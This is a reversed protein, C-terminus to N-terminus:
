SPVSGFTPITNFVIETVAKVSAVGYRFPMVLRLPAGHALPIPQDNMMWALLVQPHRLTAVQEDMFMRDAAIFRAFQATPHLELMDALDAFRVGRWKVIGRPNPGGCQLQFTHTVHPLNALDAFRLTGKWKGVTKTDIKVKMNRYDPDIEPPKPTRWKIPETIAGAESPKFERASGDPMLPLLPGPTIAQEILKDPWPPQPPAAQAVAQALLKEPSLGLSLGTLATGSLGIAQRRSIKM